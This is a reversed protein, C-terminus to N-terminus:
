WIGFAQSSIQELQPFFGNETSESMDPFFIGKSLFNERTQQNQLTQTINLILTTKYLALLHNIPTVLM